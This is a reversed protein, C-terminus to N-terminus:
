KIIVKEVVDGVKVIYLGTINLNILQVDSKVKSQYIVNGSLDIIEVDGGALGELKLAKGCAQIKSKGFQAAELGVTNPSALTIETIVVAGEAVNISLAKKGTYLVPFTYTSEIIADTQSADPVPFDLTGDSISIKRGSDHIGWKISITEGGIFNLEPLTVSGASSIFCYNPMTVWNEFDGGTAGTGFDAGTSTISSNDSFNTSFLTNGAFSSVLSSALFGLTLLVTKM